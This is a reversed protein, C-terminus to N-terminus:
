LNQRTVSKSLLSYQTKSPENKKKLQYEASYSPEILDSSNGYDCSGSADKQFHRSSNAEVWGSSRHDARAEYQQGTKELFKSRPLLPAIRAVNVLNFPLNSLELRSYTFPVLVDFGLM